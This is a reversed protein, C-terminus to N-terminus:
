LRKWIDKSIGKKKKLKKEKKNLFNKKGIYIEWNEDFEFYEEWSM